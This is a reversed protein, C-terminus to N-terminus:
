SKLAGLISTSCQEIQNVIVLTAELGRGYPDEIEVSGKQSLGRVWVIKQLARKDLERVMEWNKRDMIVVVDAWELDKVSILSSRHNSLDYGKGKLLAVYSDECPRGPPMHFGSSRIKLSAPEDNKKLLFGLLPSRYINGYCLVLINDGSRELIAKRSNMRANMLVVPHRVRRMLARLIRKVMM